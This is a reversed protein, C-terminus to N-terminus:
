LRSVAANLGLKHYYIHFKKKNLKVIYNNKSKKNIKRIRKIEYIM